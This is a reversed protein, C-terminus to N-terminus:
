LNILIEIYLLTGCIPTCLDKNKVYDRIFYACEITQKDMTDLISKQSEVAGKLSDAEQALRYVDDMVRVLQAVAIDRNRQAKIIKIAGVQANIIM